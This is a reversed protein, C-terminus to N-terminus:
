VKKDKLDGKRIILDDGKRFINVTHEDTLGVDDVWPKPLTTALSHGLNSVANTAIKVEEM